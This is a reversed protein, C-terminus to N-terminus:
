SAFLNKNSDNYSETSVLEGQVITRQRAEADTCTVLTVLTKGEVDDIVYSASPDVIQVSSIKYVYVKNGDTLYVLQGEKAHALPSFLLNSDGYTNFVHHSALSYNGQGMVQGEKMTGAGYYLNAGGVGQLIPLYLGLEPIAIGGIVPLHNASANAYTEAIKDASVPEVADFDYSVEDPNSKETKAQNKELQKKSVKNISLSKVKQDIMVNRIDANFWLALGLLLCVLSFLGWLFSKKSFKKQKEVM